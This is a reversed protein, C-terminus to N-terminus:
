ILGCALLKVSINEKKKKRRQVTISFRAQNNFILVKRLYNNYIINQIALLVSTITRATIVNIENAISISTM